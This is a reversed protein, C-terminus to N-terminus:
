TSWKIIHNLYPINTARDVICVPASYNFQDKVLDLDYQCLSEAMVCWRNMTPCVENIQLVTEDAIYGDCHIVTFKDGKNIGNFGIISKKM